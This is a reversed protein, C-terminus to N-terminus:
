ATMSRKRSHPRCRFLVCDYRVIAYRRQQPTCSELPTEVPRALVRGATSDVLWELWSALWGAPRVTEGSREVVQQKGAGRMQRQAIFRTVPIGAEFWGNDSPYIERCHLFIKVAVRFFFFLLIRLERFRIIV